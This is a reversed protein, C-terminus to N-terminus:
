FYHNNSTKNPLLQHHHLKKANQIIKSWKKVKKCGYCTFFRFIFESKHASIQSLYHKMPHINSAVHIMENQSM